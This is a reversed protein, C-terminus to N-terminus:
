CIRPLQEGSLMELVRETGIANRLVVTGPHDAVVHGVVSAQGSVPIARLVAVAREAEYPPVFAVFRGENAMQLVDLGLIECVARVSDRVSLSFEDVRIGVRGARAIENLASALGGRTPDRLCHIDIGAELLAAVPVHLPATDSTLSADTGFGARAAMIAAGHAGLDGSLIVADGPRVARPHIDLAHAIRGVGSAVVYVGDGRGREVVKTDGTVVRVGAADAAARVSDLVQDLTDLPLGEELVLAVSVYLPQAGCMALDNVTGNVALTGIDGGAFFLPSVVCADTTFALREAGIEVAAADHADHGPFRPLIRLALLDNMARGGGGHAVRVREGGTDDPLPCYPETM